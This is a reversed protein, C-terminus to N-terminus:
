SPKDTKKPEKKMEKKDDKKDDKPPFEIKADKLVLKLKEVGKIADEKTAYGGPGSMAVFKEDGDYISFRFKGDKGEKIDISGAKVKESKESKDTKTEKKTDKAKEQASLDVASMSIVTSTGAALALMLAASRVFKVM